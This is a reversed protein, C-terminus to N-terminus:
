STGGPSYLFFEGYTPLEFNENRRVKLESNTYPVQRCLVAPSSSGLDIRVDSTSSKMKVWIPKKLLPKGQESREYGALVEVQNIMQTKFIFEPYLSPNAMMTASTSMRNAMMVFDAIYDTGGQGPSGAQLYMLSKIQPPSNDLFLALGADNGHFPYKQQLDIILQSSAANTLDYSGGPVPLNPFPNRRKNEQDFEGLEIIRLFFDYAMDRGHKTEQYMATNFASGLSVATDLEAADNYARELNNRPTVIATGHYNSFYSSLDNALVMQSQFDIGGISTNTLRKIMNESTRRGYLSWSLPKLYNETIAGQEFSIGGEGYDPLFVTTPTFYTGATTIDKGAPFSSVSNWTIPTAGDNFIKAREKQIMIGFDNQNISCLGNGASKALNLFDFGLKNPLNSNFFSSFDHQIKISRDRVTQDGTKQTFLTASPSIDRKHQPVAGLVSEIKEALTEM